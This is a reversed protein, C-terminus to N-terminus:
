CIPCHRRRISIGYTPWVVRSHLIPQIPNAPLPYQLPKQKQQTEAGAEWGSLGRQVRANGDDQIFDHDCGSIGHFVDAHPHTTTPTIYPNPSKAPYELTEKHNDDRFYFSASITNRPLIRTLFEVSGGASHDDYKSSNSTALNMTSYTENDYFNMANKFQDYYARFKISNSEGLGTNTILYYGTKNWYPWRRYSFRNFTAGSNPGAYLPVGKEAKQNDYSFVYQDQGRPTWAFRGSYKADQTDSNKREYNPQFNNVPFNGSIPVFNAQLWDFSGQFYFKDWHSGINFSSLLMDGSGTGILMDTQIKKEPQRTVLNISGGMANPGLMPSSFGKAVQVEAINGSLLRNFDITGDYPMSVPIGDIYLPVQGKSSFGRLRISAENRGISLTTLRWDPCITWPQPQM